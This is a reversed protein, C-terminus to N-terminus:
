CEYYLLILSLRRHARGLPGPCYAIDAAALPKGLSWIDAVDGRYAERRLLEPAAYSPSGCATLLLRGPEDWTNSLGFDILKLRYGGDHQPALLINEPKLDRHALSLSHLYGLGDLIDATFRAAV